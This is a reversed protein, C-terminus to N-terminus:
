SCKQGAAETSLPIVSPLQVTVLGKGGVFVLCKLFQARPHRVLYNARGAIKTSANHAQKEAESILCSFQYSLLM